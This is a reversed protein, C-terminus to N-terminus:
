SENVLRSLEAASYGLLMKLDCVFQYVFRKGCVKHILDGDYYYRLARSLKEYNMSPKNKREGWLQAVREPDVLKFAGEEGVWCIIHNMNKETLLELLFQWLQIQGSGPSSYETSAKGRNAPGANLGANNGKNNGAQKQYSGNTKTTTSANNEATKEQISSDNLASVSAFKLAEVHMWLTDVASEAFLRQLNRKRFKFLLKGDIQFKEYPTLPEEASLVEVLWKMFISVEEVTWQKPDPPLHLDTEGRLMKQMLLFPTTSPVVDSTCVKKAPPQGSKGVGQLNAVDPNIIKMDVNMLDGMDTIDETQLDEQKLTRKINKLGDNDVQSCKLFDESKTRDVIGPDVLIIGVKGSDVGNIIDELNGESISKMISEDVDEASVQLLSIDTLSGELTKQDAPPTLSNIHPADPNVELLDSDCEPLSCIDSNDEEDDVEQHNVNGDSFSTVVNEGNENEITNNNNNNMNVLLNKIVNSCASALSSGTFKNDNGNNSSDNNKNRSGM